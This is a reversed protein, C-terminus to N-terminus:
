VVVFRDPPPLPPPTPCIFENQWVIKRIGRLMHLTGKINLNPDVRGEVITPVAAMGDISKLYPVHAWTKGDVRM